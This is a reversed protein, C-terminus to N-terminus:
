RWWRAVDVIARAIEATAVEGGLAFIVPFLTEIDILLFPRVRLSLQHLTDQWLPFLETAPLQSLGSALAKLAYARDSEDQLERAAALAEPLLEPPLKQALVSLTDAIESENQLERAAALAEPLVEPRKQALANLAYVRYSQDQLERAAAIAEPLLDPPLKEALAILAKARYRENQLERAAALAEPLLDPLLKQALASLANACYREDQIQRAAALAEPLLDPLKEVLANLAYARYEDYQLERAATLAEPLLDPLKEALAILVDARYYENQIKRAATLAEPLLKPLKEALAILAKARYREDSIERAVALAEPLLALPLKHAFFASLADARYREDPIERAAALAEPLLALPLKHAFFASLADARYREDPIERAATLAEPLLALPLKHAFFASLADARYREDQIERAAALAEPLLEPLKEALAILVDARYEEDQIERAATLAEPLLEPLKQALVNLAYARCIEDQIKRAAALAQPLLDPPLKEALASLANYRYEVDQIERAAALAEPLLEPLKEALAILVDARYREHQIQRAAALVTPLSDPPLKQALAILAKAIESENQIERFAALVTPLLKPPLKQALAILINARHSKNQIERAAALAEPLVQPLKEVLASLINARYWEDQIEKATALFTPLLDPPLKEALASLPKARDSEDQIERAAALAEPLLEPLKEALAILVDARYEENRIERAAALAEPLLDPLKEVLASLAKARYKENRIERATALAEPLLDPPLNKALVILVDAREREDLFKRATDLAKSLLDPPLQEALANLIDVFDSDFLYSAAAFAKLVVEPLKQALAVLVDARYRGHIEKAAALFTPLLDPPLNEALPILLNACYQDDAIERFAALVKPLLDLPLKKALFASLAKARCNQNQIEMVAVFVKTLLDPPLKEVLASLINARYREHQIERAAALFTPLLDLPLQEALAILANARDSENQIERAAALAEPLLAPPLKEVLAILANARDSENQIERAAALAEPLALEKLNPPLYNVLETLSNVKQKREPNQLAYALGQEPTWFNNKVLGVLLKAPVNGALSNLSASILVYRCQLGVVQPLTSENWNEEALKWARFIDTIYGEAQGLKERAEFWGNSGTQSEERLLQHIEEVREAKELHWVLRQHIYGDNPLTHWLNKQTKQRYQQLFNVHATAFSLGLGPLNGRHKPTPSATLLNRALDHLLDHLRYILTGDALPISPLLLAKSGLYRLRDFADREDTDWLTATMMQTINVDEPLVGLWTLDLRNEEPLRQISLNLSATLSFRKLSAEDIFDRAEPDDFTKLRAVEQEIDQLLVAWRIGGKVQAAALELALPLYGVAKALAEAEQRELDILNRGLLKTLLEMAQEPKMVDLSYISAGLVKAIASERTTVLIKCRSGGVKFHEIYKTNWADDIILLMVKDQLLSGLHKSTVEVNTARHNYDGLAQVWGGLLELVKPEQGLTVCLIGDCFHKRVESDHALGAVLTSKGVCGMGHIAISEMTGANSSSKTLLRAKLDQSYEQRDVYYSPLPPAQFPIGIRTAPKPTVFLQGGENDRWRLYLVPRYWQNGETGMAERGQSIAVALSNKQGLSRYFQESFTTAAEVNVSYQMAVVAPVRHSILNQATGNFVSDGAVAMASQCASLVVLAVGGSTNSGDGFSSQRLLIGLEAASVYNPEGEEDEFLLYGQPDLLETNCKRCRLAKIGQHIMRCIPNPCRKGFFGHGDFHLVQPADKGRHETLYVRLDNITAYELEALCILGAESANELGKRIAQQEKKTLKKLGQELDFAASSILLVNVREVTALNSPVTEHAIYRSIAVLRQLLFTQGNHLLEWPYDVLRSRLVVDAEFILRIHLQTHNSETLREAALLAKEVKSGVPFLSRYLAQGINALYNPHFVSREKHLIGSKVMWDQESAQLFSEPKFATIELSKILTIRWDIEGEFFPLISETEGEGVPSKTVIAKFRKADLPSLYLEFTEM